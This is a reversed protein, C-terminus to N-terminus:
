AHPINEEILVEHDEGFQLTGARSAGGVAVFLAELYLEKVMSYNQVTGSRVCANEDGHAKGQLRTLHTQSLTHTLLSHLEFHPDPLGRPGPVADRQLRLVPFVSHRPSMINCMQEPCVGDIVRTHVAVCSHHEATAM